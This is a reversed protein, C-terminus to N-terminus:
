VRSPTLAAVKRRGSPPVRVGAPAAFGSAIFLSFWFFLAALASHHDADIEAVFLVLQAAVAVALYNAAQKNGGRVYLRYTRFTTVIGVVIALEYALFGLVGMEFFRAIFGNDIEEGNGGALKTSGGSAGLGQGLPETMGETIAETTQSQRSAASSDSGIDGFTSIRQQLAYVTSSAGESNVVALLLAGAVVFCAAVAGLTLLVPGRRPSLVLFIALGLALALWEARVQTLVLAIVCPVMLLGIWWRTLRLRPANLLVAFDLFNSLPGTSNLTGFIRFGFSQTVGQSGEINAQQAWYVDWPPPAIYQWIGYVSAIVALWLITNATRDYVAPLDEDPSASMLIGLFLPAIFIAAAYLASFASGSVFSIIYAYGFALVWLRTVQRYATGIRAWSPGFVLVAPLLSLLPLISFISFAHFSTQYDVIRRVEPALVWTALVLSVYWRWSFFRRVLSM